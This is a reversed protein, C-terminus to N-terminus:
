RWKAARPRLAPPDISACFAQALPSQPRDKLQLRLLPRLWPLGESAPRAVTALEALRLLDDVTRRPVIAIGAGAAVARAIATNSALEATRRPQMHLLDRLIRDTAERTGSGSERQLWISAGLDARSPPRRGTLDSGPAAVMVLEDDRWHTVQLREDDVAGEVLALDIECDRVAQAMAQTNGVRLQLQVDPHAALFAALSQPLWFSAVTTSAGIRLQGRRLGVRAEIDDIAARELAYLARAHDFLAVGSDTLHVGRAGAPGRELLPLQLQSELERVAKSVAPQSIFLREAARSFSREQAVAAFVRLLHLNLGPGIPM